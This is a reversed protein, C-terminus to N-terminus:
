KRSNVFEKVEEISYPVGRRHIIAHCNACVPRLDKVPDVKYTKGISAITQLHHIHIFGKGSEGYSKEFNFNCVTCTYGYKEICMKRAYPNREYRTITTQNSEGESYNLAESKKGLKSVLPKERNTLLFWKEELENIIEEKISQGSAQPTWNQVSLDGTTLIDMGLITDREPHLLTDFEGHVRLTGEEDLIVNSTAYGAAIIGKPQTGVKVLFLRDGPKIKKTVGCSWFKEFKGIKSVKEIESDIDEWEWAKPNWVLLYASM